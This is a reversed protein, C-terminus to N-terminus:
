FSSWRSPSFATARSGPLDTPRTNLIEFIQGARLLELLRKVPSTSNMLRVVGNRGRTRNRVAILAGLGACDISTTQSLDIEVVTHGNLAACVQKQFLNSNAATLEAFGMVALTTLAEAGLGRISIGDDAVPIPNSPNAQGQTPARVSERTQLIENSNV